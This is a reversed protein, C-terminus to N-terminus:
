SVSYTHGGAVESPRRRPRLGPRGAAHRRTPALAPAPTPALTLALTLTLTLTLIVTLALTLNLTLTLTRKGVASPTKGKGDIIAMIQTHGPQPLPADGAAVERLARKHKKM